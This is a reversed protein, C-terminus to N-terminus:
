VSVSKNNGVVGSTERVFTRQIGYGPVRTKGSSNATYKKWGGLRLLIGEIEYSDTRKLNQREKGFCECWIEMICVRERRVTGVKGGSRFEGEGLFSRRQYLDMNDWDAPLLKELYDDIIGERDDSEMAAQQQVYAMASVEDSVTLSEGERYMTLAEAWIQDITPQNLSFVSLKSNGRVPM